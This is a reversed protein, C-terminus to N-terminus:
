FLLWHLTQAFEEIAAEFICVGSLGGAVLQLTPESCHFLRAEWALEFGPYVLAADEWFDEPGLQDVLYGERCNLAKLPFDAAVEGASYANYPPPLM